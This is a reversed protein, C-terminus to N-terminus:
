TSLLRAIALIAAVASVGVAALLLLAAIQINGGNAVANGIPRRLPPRGLPNAWAAFAVILLIVAISALIHAVELM